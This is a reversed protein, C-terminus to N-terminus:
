FLYRDIVWSLLAGTTAGALDWTLDRWSPDGGGYGDYVEKAAGAATALGFAGLLRWETRESVLSVGAYADSALLGTATYHVAKDHALWRDESGALCPASARTLLLVASVAALAMAGPTGRAPSTSVDTLM